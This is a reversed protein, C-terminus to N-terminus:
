PLRRGPTWPAGAAELEAELGPLETELIATLETRLAGLERAAVDLSTRQTATPAQRTDWHGGAVRGIRDLISPTAAENLRDRVRDGVLRRRLTALTREIGDISQYLAAEARPTEGLAHRMYRLREEGRELEEAAGRATRSLESTRRQFETVESYDPTELVTGPVPKVEFERAEGVSTVGEASVLAM